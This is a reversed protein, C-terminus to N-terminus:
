LVKRELLTVVVMQDDAAFPQRVVTRTLPVRVSYDAGAVVTPISLTCGEESVVAKLNGGIMNTLECIADEMDRMEDDPTSDGFFAHAARRAAPESCQLVVTGTWAGMIHVHGQFTRPGAPPAQELAVLPVGVAQEWVSSSLDVVFREMDQQM